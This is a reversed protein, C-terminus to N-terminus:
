NSTPLVTTAKATVWFEDVWPLSFEHPMEMDEAMQKLQEPTAIQEIYKFLQREEFRIHYDLIDALRALTKYSAYQQLAQIHEQIAEHEVMMKQMMPHEPSLVESFLVEEKQTHEKLHEKWFWNCFSAMRKPHIQKAIGQKVKWSFLLGDHHERSLPALEKSRKIPKNEVIM